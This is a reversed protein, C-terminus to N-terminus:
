MTPPFKNKGDSGACKTKASIEYAVLLPVSLGTRERLRVLAYVIFPYNLRLKMGLIFGELGLLFLQM